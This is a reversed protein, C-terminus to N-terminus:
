VEEERRVMQRRNDIERQEETAKPWRGATVTMRFAAFFRPILLLHGSHEYIGTLLFPVSRYTGFRKAGERPLLQAFGQPYTRFDLRM